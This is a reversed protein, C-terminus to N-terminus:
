LTGQADRALAMEFRSLNTRELNLKRLKELAGDLDAYPALYPSLKKAVELPIGYEELAVLAPYTFYHEVRSAYLEYNGSRMRLRRFVDRQIRDLARLFQPFHFNAWMRWFDLVQQVAKDADKHYNCAETILDKVV